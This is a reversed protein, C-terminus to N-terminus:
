ANPDYGHVPHKALNSTAHEQYMSVAADRDAFLRRIETDVAEHIDVTTSQWRVDYITLDTSGLSLHRETFTSVSRMGQTTYTMTQQEIPGCKLTGDRSAGLIASRLEQPVPFGSPGVRRILAPITEPGIWGDYDDDPVPTILAVRRGYRTIYTSTRTREANIALDGLQARAEEIGLDTAMPM